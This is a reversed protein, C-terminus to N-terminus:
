ARCVSQFRFIDRPLINISAFGGCRNRTLGDPRISPGFPVLAGNGLMLVPIPLLLSDWLRSESCSFLLYFSMLCMLIWCAASFLSFFGLLNPLTTPFAESSSLLLPFLHPLVSLFLICVSDFDTECAKLFQWTDTMQKMLAWPSPKHLSWPTPKGM